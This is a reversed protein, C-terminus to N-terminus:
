KCLITHDLQEPQLDSMDLFGNQELKWWARQDCISDGDSDEVTPAKDKNTLASRYREAANPPPGGLTSADHHDNSYTAVLGALNNDQISIEPCDDPGPINLSSTENDRREKATDSETPMKATYM